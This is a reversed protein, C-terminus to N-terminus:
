IMDIIKKNNILYFFNVIIYNKNIKYWMLLKKNNFFLWVASRIM